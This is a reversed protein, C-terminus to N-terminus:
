VPACSSPSVSWVHSAYAAEAYGSRVLGQPRLARLVRSVTVPSVEAYQAVEPQEDGAGPGTRRRARPLLISGTEPPRLRCAVGHERDFKEARFRDAAVLRQAVFRALAIATEPLAALHATLAEASIGPLDVNRLAVLSAIHPGPQLYSTAGLLDGRGRLELPDIKGDDDTLAEKLGGGLM